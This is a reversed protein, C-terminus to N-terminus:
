ISHFRRAQIGFYAFIYLSSRSRYTCQSVALVLMKDKEAFEQTHVYELASGRGTQSSIGTGSESLTYLVCCACDEGGNSIRLPLIRVFLYPRELGGKDRFAPCVSLAIEKTRYSGRSDREPDPVDHFRIRAPHCTALPATATAYWRSSTIPTAAPSYRRPQRTSDRRSAASIVALPSVQVGQM